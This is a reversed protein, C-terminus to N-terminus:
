VVWSFKAWATNRGGSIIEETEETPDDAQYMKWNRAQQYPFERAVVEALVGRVEAM